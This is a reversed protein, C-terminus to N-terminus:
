IEKNNQAPSHWNQGAIDAQLGVPETHVQGETLSWIDLRGIFQTDLLGDSLKYKWRESSHRERMKVAETGGRDWERNKGRRMTDNHETEEM